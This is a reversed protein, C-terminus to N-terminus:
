TFQINWCMKNTINRATLTFYHVLLANDSTTSHGIDM